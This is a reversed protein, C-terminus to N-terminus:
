VESLLRYCIMNTQANELRSKKLRFIHKNALLSWSAPIDGLWEVGSDKYAEYRPMLALSEM